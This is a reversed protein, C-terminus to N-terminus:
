PAPSPALDAPPPSSPNELTYVGATDPPIEFTTVPSDSGFLRVEYRGPKLGQAAFRGTRNTILEVAPWAPDSLSVIRGHQLALPNGQSDVLVGRLLVTAESGVRILTGSRYSPFLQYSSNGLDSGLPLDPADVALTTLNYPSLPVVAPGLADARAIDGFSSPNVQVLHDQASGQRTVLAFSNDIPRSWGFVGDAFVLATGWTLRTTATTPSPSHRPIDLSHDLTIDARYGQYRTQSLLSLTRDRTTATLATSLGGVPVPSSYSWNLRNALGNSDVTTATNVFQRQRPLAASLGVFLRPEAQGQANVGYSASTNLSLHRAIPQSLGLAISYAHSPQDRTVQYRGSLTARGHEFIPQSYTLSLDLGTGNSPLDDAVTMFNAGRYEAALRLSRSAASTAGQFFWDYYLRAAGDLGHAQDLSLAADWGVTGVTTAWTGEVGVMQTSLDGQLYGGLTLNDTVGARHALTLTPQNLNYGQPSSGSGLAPFGLSYAFQQVGPALLDGSVGTAFDLQQVRGLDDTIVLQVGNIGGRLPLNRVDQPGPDLRLTQVSQGNIFVEVTSPRELFFEFRSIPRTIQYPQLAFNRAVTVGLTPLSAQYGRVPTAIDGLQYRIAAATDDHVLRIPGRQWGTTGETFGLSSELVWGNLNLAGDLNLQLPQRGTNGNGTWVVAQSGRLNLYGSVPSPRLAQALEAPAANPGVDVVATQRLAAPITVQLELRSSDFNVAIGTARIIELPLIGDTQAAALQAAINPRLVPALATLFDDTAVQVDVQSGGPVLVLGQGAPQDNLLIPM